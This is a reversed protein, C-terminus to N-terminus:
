SLPSDGYDAIIQRAWAVLEDVRQGSPHSSVWLELNEPRNDDKVGNKHHVTEHSRLPRGLVEEMVARHEFVDGDRRSGRLVIYGRVKRRLTVTGRKPRDVPIDYRIARQYHFSCYGRADHAGECGQVKCGRKPDRTQFPKDMDWGHRKRQYHAGCLGHTRAPRDCWSISCTMEYM